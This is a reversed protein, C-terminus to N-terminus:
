DDVTLVVNGVKRGSEVYRNAEVAQQLPFVQDVAVKIRGADILERLADLDSASEGAMAFHVKKKTTWSIWLGRAMRNVLPNGILYRGRESLLAMNRSFASKLVLDFIVDYSKGNRTFDTKTYDIVHDAGLARITDLKDGRDVGTVEAGFHKALQVAYLGITGGAGNVLVREGKQVNAKRLFHLANQGGTPVAAAEEFSLSEPMRAVAGTERICRYEAHAGLGMATSAYVRDGPAFRKVEKGVAEIVGALEQGLVNMRKPRRLGVFLRLPIAVWLPFRFSRMECDGPTVTTARIRVLVEDDKPSPKEREEMRLVEPPGYERFVIAKM